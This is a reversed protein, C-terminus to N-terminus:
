EVTSYRYIFEVKELCFIGQQFINVFKLWKITMTLPSLQPNKSSCVPASEPNESPPRFVSTPRQFLIDPPCQGGSAIPHQMKSNHFNNRFVKNEINISISLLKRVSTTKIPLTYPTHHTCGKLFYQNSEKLAALIVNLELFLVNKETNKYCCM